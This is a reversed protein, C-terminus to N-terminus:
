DPPGMSAAASGASSGISSAGMAGGGGGSQGLFGGTVNKGVFGFLSSMGTDSGTDSDEPLGTGSGGSYSQNTVRPDTPSVIGSDTGKAQAEDKNIDTGQTPDKVKGQTAQGSLFAALQIPANRAQERQVREQQWKKSGYEAANIEGGLAASEQELSMDLLGGAM